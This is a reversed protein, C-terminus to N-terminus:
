FNYEVQLTVFWADTANKEFADGPIFNAIVLEVEMPRLHDFGIIVDFEDGIDGVLGEPDLRLRTDRMDPFPEPQRYHHYVVDVSTRNLPRVGVGATYVVLNSLDPRTLEGLYRFSTVGNMRMNNDNLGTQRFTHDTRGPKDDGSGYAYGAYISPEFRSASNRYMVLTDFAYGAVRTDGETGYVGAVDLWYEFDGAVGEFSLGFHNRGLDVRTGDERRLWYLFLQHDDFPETHFGVLLNKVDDEEPTTDRLAESVSVEFLGVTTNFYARIADIEDDMVWERGHDFDQRGIQLGFGRFPFDIALLYGQVVDVDTNYDLDRDQDSHVIRRQLQTQVFGFLNPTLAASVEIKGSPEHILRDRRRRTLLDHNRRWELEYQVEGGITFRDAITLQDDPRRDEDDFRRLHRLGGLGLSQLGGLWRDTAAPPREGEVDWHIPTDLDFSIPVGGVVARGRAHRAEDVPGQVEALEGDARTRRILKRLRREGRRVICEAKVWDGVHFDTPPIDAGTADVFTSKQEFRFAVGGVAATGATADIATLPGKLTVEDDPEEIEIRTATFAGGEAFAGRAEITRDKQILTPTVAMKGDADPGREVHPRFGRCGASTAIALLLFVVISRTM